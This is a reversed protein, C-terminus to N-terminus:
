RGEFKAVDKLHELSPEADYLQENELEDQIKQLFYQMYEEKSEVDFNINDHTHIEDDFSCPKGRLDCINDKHVYDTTNKYFDIGVGCIEKVLFFDARIIANKIIEEAQNLITNM